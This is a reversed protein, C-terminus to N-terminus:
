KPAAKAAPVKIEMPPGKPEMRGSIMFWLLIAGGLVLAACVILVKRLQRRQESQAVDLKDLTKRVKKLAAQEVVRQAHDAIAARDVDNSAESSM